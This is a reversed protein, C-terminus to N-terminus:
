RGNSASWQDVLVLHSAADTYNQNQNRTSGTSWSYIHTHTRTHTHAHTHSLKFEYHYAICLQRAIRACLIEQWFSSLLFHLQSTTVPLPLFISSFFHLATKHTVPLFTKRKTNCFKQKETIRVTVHKKLLEKKTSLSSTYCVWKRKM